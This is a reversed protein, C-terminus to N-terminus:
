YNYMVYNGLFSWIPTNDTIIRVIKDIVCCATNWLYVADRVVIQYSEAM